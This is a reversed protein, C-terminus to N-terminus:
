ATPWARQRRPQATALATGSAARWRCRVPLTRTACRVAAACTARRVTATCTARWVSATCATRRIAPKRAPCRVTATCATRRVVPRAGAPRRVTLAAGVRSGAARRVTAPHTTAGLVRGPGGGGIERGSEGRLGAATPQQAPLVLLALKAGKHDNADGGVRPRCAGAKAWGALPLAPGGGAPWVVQSGGASGPMIPAESGRRAMASACPRM